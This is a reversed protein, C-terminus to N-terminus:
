EQASRGKEQLVEAYRQVTQDTSTQVIFDVGKDELKKIDNVNTDLCVTAIYKRDEPTLREAVHSIIRGGVGGLGIIITPKHNAM